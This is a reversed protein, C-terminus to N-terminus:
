AETAGRPGHAQGEHQPMHWSLPVPGSGVLHIVTGRSGALKGIALDLQGLLKQADAVDFPAVMYAVHLTLTMGAPLGLTPKLGRVVIRQAVAAAEAISVAGNLLLVFGGNRYRSATDSEFAEAAVCGGARVLALQLIESGYAEDIGAANAVQVRLLAGRTPRRLMLTLREM